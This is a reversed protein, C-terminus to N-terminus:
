RRLSSILKEFIHVGKRAIVGHLREILVLWILFFQESNAESVINVLKGARRATKRLEGFLKIVFVEPCDGGLNKTAVTELLDM